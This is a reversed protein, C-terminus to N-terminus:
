KKVKEILYMEAEFHTEDEYDVWGGILMQLQPDALSARLLRDITAEDKEPLIYFATEGHIQHRIAIEGTVINPLTYVFAAPSPFYSAPDAISAQYVMDAEISSSRNVLVIGMSDHSEAPDLLEAGIFGLRSLGDMKYFKPYDGVFRKYLETLLAKGTAQTDLKHGDLIVETPTISLRRKTQCLPACKPCACKPVPVQTQSRLLWDGLTRGARLREGLTDQTVLLAGNGGGFGSIMKVFSLKDTKNHAASLQIKGSVGIEKFGKTGLVTHDNAAAISLITELIGAAGLTHGFYGKLANVPINGLGAREIAVSEMQDNFMTATGHANIFSLTNPDCDKLVAELALRAGEGNKSPSSIHFADNRIIGNEIGWGDGSPERSLIMTAAAEGLNLGLREIDFPRCPADSLAKLSQFGSITFPTLVDAGCVIAYDYDDNELLRGALVIASVGSICANCVAIPETSVHLEQAIHRAAAGPSIGQTNGTQIKEINGKTTSLILVVRESTPDIKADGLAQRISRIALSEFRTMGPIVSIASFRSAVYAEGHLEYRQLQTQGQKAAEYNQVTTEGLPSIINDAVRYVM